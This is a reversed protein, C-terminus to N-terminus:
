PRRGWNYMAYGDRDHYATWEWCEDPGRKDVHSWFRAIDSDTLEIKRTKIPM